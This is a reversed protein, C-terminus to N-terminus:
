RRERETRSFFSADLGRYTPKKPYVLGGDEGDALKRFLTAIGQRLVQDGSKNAQRAALLTLKSETVYVAM